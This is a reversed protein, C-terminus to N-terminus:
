PKAGGEGSPAPARFTLAWVFPNVDWGYGRAANLERWLNAFNERSDMQESPFGEAAADEASIEQVRQVRVDTIELTLRSAWRPMHISPRIRGYNQRPEDGPPPFTVVVAYASGLAAASDGDHRHPLVFNERVWLQDGLQGYPCVWEGSLDGDLLGFGGGLDVMKGNPGANPQPKVVRRTQTKRGDLIARVM